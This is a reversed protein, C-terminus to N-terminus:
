MKAGKPIKGFMEKIEKERSERELEKLVSRTKGNEVVKEVKFHKDALAAIQPMHTIVILQTDKSIEKLKEAVVDATRVGVGAAIEDFVITEIPLKEGLAAELALYFRATEGGSAIKSLPLSGLGPNLMGFFELFDIGNETFDTREHLYSVKAEKMGLDHLNRETKEILSEVAKKRLNSIELALPEMESKVKRLRKDANELIEEEKRLTDLQTRLDKLKDRVDELTPGYRRKLREVASIHKELEVIKEEDPEQEMGYNEIETSFTSIADEISQAMELFRSAKEDLSSIEKSKKIVNIMSNELGNDSNVLFLIEQAVQIIRQANSLRKYESLMEEYEEDSILVHEIKEIENQLVEMEEKVSELEKKEVIKKTNVYEKFLERYKSLLLGIKEDFLDVFTMHTKSDKIIGAAGQTHIVFLSDMFKKLQSLTILSGNMRASTRSPTFKISIVNEVGKSKFRAEIEGREVPVSPKEGFLAKLAALFLSKGAGTEGTVVNLGKSFEVTIEQFLVFNKIHIEELM